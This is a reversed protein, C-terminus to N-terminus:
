HKFSKDFDAKFKYLNLANLFVNFAKSLTNHDIVNDDFGEDESGGVRLLRVCDVKFGNEKLLREYAAVQFVHEPYLAASTKIDVLWLNSDIYGYWDITGGFQFIESVLPFEIKITDMEHSKEWNYFSLLSNEAADIQEKSFEDEVWAPGGLSFQIMQHALSGIRATEDVYSSSDIGKLGLNNAWKVLAPKNIISLITTVGPIIKNTSNRYRTHAKSKRAVNKEISM